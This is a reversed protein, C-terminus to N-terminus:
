YYFYKEDTDTFTGDPCIYTATVRYTVKGKSPPPPIPIIVSNSLQGNVIQYIVSLGASSPNWAFAGGTSDAITKLSVTDPQIGYGITYIPIQWYLSKHLISDMSLPALNNNGDTFGIVSPLYTPNNQALSWVDDQGKEIARYLATYGQGTFNNSTVGTILNQTNTTLPTVVEVTDSFKIIEIQDYTNKLNIFTTLANEMSPISTSDSYMSGSYDMTLATIITSPLSSGGSPNVPTEVGGNIMSIKFNSNSLNKIANGKQDTVSIFINLGNKHNDVIRLIKTNISTISKEVIIEDKQCASLILVSTLFLVIIPLLLKKM